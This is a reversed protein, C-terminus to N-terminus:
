TFSSISGSIYLFESMYMIYPVYIFHFFTYGCVYLQSMNYSKKQKQQQTCVQCLPPMTNMQHARMPLPSVNATSITVNGLGSLGSTGGSTLGGGGIGDYNTTLAHSSTSSTVGGMSSMFSYSMCTPVTTTMGSSGISSTMHHSPGTTRPHELEALIRNDQLLFIARYSSRMYGKRKLIRLM